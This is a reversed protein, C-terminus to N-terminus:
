ILARLGFLIHQVNMVLLADITTPDNIPPMVANNGLTSSHEPRPDSNFDKVHIAVTNLKSAKDVSTLPPHSVPAISQFAYPSLYHRHRIIIPPFSAGLLTATLAIPSRSKSAFAPPCTEQQVM